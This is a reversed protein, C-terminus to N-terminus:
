FPMDGDEPDWKPRPPLERQPSQTRRGMEYCLRYLKSPTAGWFLWLKEAARAPDDPISISRPAKANGWLSLKETETM